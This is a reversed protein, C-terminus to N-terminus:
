WWGIIASGRDSTGVLRGFDRAVDYFCSKALIRRAVALRRVLERDDPASKVAAELDEVRRAAAAPECIRTSGFVVVTHHIDNEELLYEPKLYDLQLRVGRVDDRALFATDDDTPRYSPSALIAELRGPAEPDEEPPKPRASPLPQDRLQPHPPAPVRPRSAPPRKSSTM